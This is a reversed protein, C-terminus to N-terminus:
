DLQKVTIHTGLQYITSTQTNTASAFGFQITGATGGLLVQGKVKIINGGNFQIFSFGTLTASALVISSQFTTNTGISGDFCAAITAGTPITIQFKIGGTNNCGSYIHGEIDYLKNAALTPTVLDTINIAVNSTTTQNGTTIRLDWEKLSRFLM